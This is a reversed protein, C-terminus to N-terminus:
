ALAQSESIESLLLSFSSTMRMQWLITSSFLWKQVTEFGFKKYRRDELCYAYKSLSWLPMVRCHSSFRRHIMTVTNFEQISRQGILLLKLPLKSNPFVMSFPWAQKWLRMNKMPQSFNSILILPTRNRATLQPQPPKNTQKLVVNNWTSFGSSHNKLWRQEVKKLSELLKWFKLWWQSNKQM